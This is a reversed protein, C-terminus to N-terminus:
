FGSYAGLPQLTVPHRRKMHPLVFHVKNRSLLEGHLEDLWLHMADTDM